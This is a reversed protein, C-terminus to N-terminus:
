FDSVSGYNEFTPVPVTFINVTGCCQLPQLAANCHTLHAPPHVHLGPQLLVAVQLKESFGLGNEVVTLHKGELYFAPQFNLYNM